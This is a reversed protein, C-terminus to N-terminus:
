QIGQNQIQTYNTSFLDHTTFCFTSKKFYWAIIQANRLSKKDLYWWCDVQCSQYYIIQVLQIIIKDM